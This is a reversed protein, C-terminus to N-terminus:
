PRRSSNVFSHIFAAFPPRCELFALHDGFTKHVLDKKNEFISKYASQLGAAGFSSRMLLLYQIFLGSSYGFACRSRM